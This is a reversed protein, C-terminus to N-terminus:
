PCAASVPAPGPSIHRRPAQAHIWCGRCSGLGWAGWTVRRLPMPVRALAAGARPRAATSHTCWPDPALVGWRPGSRHELSAPLTQGSAPPFSLLLGPPCCPHVSVGFHLPEDRPDGPGSHERAVCVNRCFTVTCLHGRCGLIGAPLLWYRPLSRPVRRRMVARSRPVPVSGAPGSGGAPSLSLGPQQVCWAVVSSFNPWLPAPEREGEM